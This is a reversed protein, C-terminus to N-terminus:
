YISFRAISRLFLPISYGEKYHEVLNLSSRSPTTIDSQQGLQMSFKHTGRAWPNPAIHFLLSDFGRNNFSPFIDMYNDPLIPWCDFDSEQMGNTDYELSLKTCSPLVLHPLLTLIVPPDQSLSLEKLGSHTVTLSLDFDLCLETPTGRVHM